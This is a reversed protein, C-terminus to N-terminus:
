RLDYRMAINFLPIACRLNEEYRAPRIGLARQVAKKDTPQPVDMVAKIKNMDPQVGAPTM